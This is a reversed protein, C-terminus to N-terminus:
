LEYNEQKAREYYEILKKGKDEVWSSTVSTGHEMFGKDNLMYLMFMFLKGKNEEIFNKEWEHDENAIKYFSEFNKDATYKKAYEINHRLYEVIMELTEQPCECGCLGLESFILDDYKEKFKDNDM